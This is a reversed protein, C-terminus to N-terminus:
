AVAANLPNDTLFTVSKFDQIFGASKTVLRFITDKETYM